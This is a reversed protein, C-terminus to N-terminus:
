KQKQGILLEQLFLIKAGTQNRMYMKFCTLKNMIANKTPNGTQKRACSVSKTASVMSFIAISEVANLGLGVFATNYEAIKGPNPCIYLRFYQFNGNM